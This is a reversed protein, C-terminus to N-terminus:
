DNYNIGLSSKVPESMFLMRKATTVPTSLKQHEPMNKNEINHENNIHNISHPEVLVKGIPSSIIYPMSTHVEETVSTVSSTSKQITAIFISKYNL